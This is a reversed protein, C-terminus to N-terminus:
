RWAEMRVALLELAKVMQKEVASVSIGVRIGIEKYSLKEVRRLVFVTRTREPLSMMAASLEGLQLRGALERYPDLENTGQQDDDIPVLVAYRKQRSRHRYRDTLVNAAIRYIYGDLHEVTELDSHQAVRLFSEQALDEAEARDATRRAFWSVLSARLAVYRKALEEAQPRAIPPESMARKQVWLPALALRRPATDFRIALATM